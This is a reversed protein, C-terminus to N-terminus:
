KGRLAPPQASPWQEELLLGSIGAASRWAEALTRLYELKAEAVSRQAQLVRLYEFQGGKYAQLALRYTENADPLISTRYREARKRAAAYQGHVTALKGSLDLETRGVEQIARGVEAQAAFRGGQNRNWAPVPVSMQLTWDNSQNQNQRVYGAGITVNPVAAANARQLALQAREIGVQASIMEPRTEVMRARDRDFDYDPLAVDLSGNLTAAVVEPVGSTAALRRLAADREREAAEQDARFRNLEVRMQILDLQAVLGAKLLKETQEYSQTALKVLDNLIGLRHQTVLVDFFGARVDAMLEFRQAMMALEAQNMERTAVARDLSLKRATVIEQSILPATIIGGRGQRDSMEDFNVSVNPNPYLGAQRARGQAAQVNFGAQALRPHSMLSQQILDELSIGSVLEASSSESARRIPPLLNNSRSSPTAPTQAPLHSIALAALSVVLQCRLSSLRITTM